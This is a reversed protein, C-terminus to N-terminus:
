QTQLISLIELYIRADLPVTHHSGWGIWRHHEPEIMADKSFVLGDFSTFPFTMGITKYPHPPIGNMTLHKLYECTPTNGGCLEMLKGPLTADLERLLTSGNLPSNVTILLEINWRFRHLNAGVVGGMSNGIVVFPRNHDGKFHDILQKSLMMCATDPHVNADYQPRFVDTYGNWNLLWELGILTWARNGLGHLIVITTDKAIM